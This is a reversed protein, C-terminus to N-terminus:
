LFHRSFQSLVYVGNQQYYYILQQLLNMQAM